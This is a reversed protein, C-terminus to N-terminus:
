EKKSPLKYKNYWQQYLQSYYTDWEVLPVLGSNRTKELHSSNSVITIGDSYTNLFFGYYENNTDFNSKLINPLKLKVEINLESYNNEIITKYFNQITPLIFKFRIHDTQGSPDVVATDMNINLGNTASFRCILVEWELFEPTNILFGILDNTTDFRYQLM